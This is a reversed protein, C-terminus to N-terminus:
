ERLNSIFGYCDRDGELVLDWFINLEQLNQPLTFKKYVNILHQDFFRKPNLIITVARNYVDTKLVSFEKGYIQPYPFIEFTDPQWQTM